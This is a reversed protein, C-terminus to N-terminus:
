DSSALLAMSGLGYFTYEVDAEHDWSGGRFGGESLGLSHVFHVTQAMDGASLAGLDALAVLATFTSLLDGVPTRANARFGGEPSQMSALFTVAGRRTSEDMGDLLRLLGVAAATPNTGSQRIPDLEVFGGDARRRSRILDVTRGPDPIPLNELELCAAALFTQYTSTHRSGASRAYGGDPRRLRSITEAVVDSRARGAREFLDIGCAAELLAASFALSLFDISPLPRSLQRALFEAARRAIQDDLEGSLAAGRLAFGTYYPDSPGERGAFGGDENQARALFAAHRRRTEEPLSSAGAALRLTLAGLYSM